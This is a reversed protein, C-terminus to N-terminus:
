KLITGKRELSLLKEKIHVGGLYGTLSGNSGIVRHCPIFIPIPNRNCALGVARAAKPRNIKEAVQKYTYTQGYPIEKLVQWIEKMFDTGTLLKLPLSFEKLEGKLYKNLECAAEKLVPTEIIDLDSPLTEGEFYMACISGENEQIAIEGIDTKYFYMSMLVESEM